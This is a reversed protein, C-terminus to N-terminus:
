VYRGLITIVKADRELQTQQHELTLVRSQVATDQRHTGTASTM